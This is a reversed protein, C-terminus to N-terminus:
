IYKDSNMRSSTKTLYFKNPYVMCGLEMISGGKGQRKPLNLTAVDNKQYSCLNDPGDVSFKKEDSFIIFNTSIDETLMKKCFKIRENKTLKSSPIKREIKYYTFDMTKMKRQITRLSVDLNLKNKIIRSNVLSNKQIRDMTVRKIKLEDARNLKRPRGANSRTRRNKTGGSKLVRSVTTHAIKLKKAIWRCFKNERSYDLIKQRVEAFLM